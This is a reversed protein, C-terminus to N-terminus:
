QLLCDLCAPLCSSSRVEVVVLDSGALQTAKDWDEMDTIHVVREDVKQSERLRRERAQDPTEGPRLSM